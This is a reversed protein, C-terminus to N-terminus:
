PHPIKLRYLPSNEAPTSLIKWKNAKSITVSEYTPNEPQLVTTHDYQRLNSVALGV